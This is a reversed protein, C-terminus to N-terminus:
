IIKLLHRRGMPTPLEHAGEVIGVEDNPRGQGGEVERATHHDDEVDSDELYTVESGIGLDLLTFLVYPAQWFTPYEM